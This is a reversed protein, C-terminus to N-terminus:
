AGPAIRRLKGALLQDLDFPREQQQLEESIQAMISTSVLGKPPDTLMQPRRIPPLEEGEQMEKGSQKIAKSIFQNLGKILLGLDTHYYLNSPEDEDILCYFIDQDIVLVTQFYVTARLPNQLSIHERRTM